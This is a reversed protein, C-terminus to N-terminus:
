IPTIGFGPPDGPYPNSLLRIFFGRGAVGNSNRDQYFQLTIGIVRNNFNNSLMQGRADESTFVLNNTVSRALVVEVANGVARKLLDDNLDCYYLIFSNTDAKSPYVRLANGEQRKGFLVEKFNKADGNGVRILGASRIDTAIQNVANRAEGCARLKLQLTADYRLAFIHMALFGSLVLGLLGSAMMVEVLTMAAQQRRLSSFALNM